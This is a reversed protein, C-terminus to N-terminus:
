PREECYVGDLTRWARFLVKRKKAGERTVFARPYDLGEYTKVFDRAADVAPQSDTFQIHPESQEVCNAAIVPDSALLTREVRYYRDTKM